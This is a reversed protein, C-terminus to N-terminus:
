SRRLCICKKKKRRTRLRTFQFRGHTHRISVDTASTGFSFLFIFYTHIVCSLFLVPLCPNLLLCSRPFVRIDLRSSDKGCWRTSCERVSFLFRADNIRSGTMSAENPLCHKTCRTIRGWNTCYLSPRLIYLAHQGLQDSLADENALAHSAQRACFTLKSDDYKM